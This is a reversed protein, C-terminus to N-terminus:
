SVDVDSDLKGWAALREELLSNFWQVREMGAAHGMGEVMLGVGPQLVKILREGNGPAMLKDATGHVVLIRERGVRDAIALLQAESKRHWWAAVLQCLFGSVSFEGGRRKVLEQAQFRQFNSDFLRYELDTDDDEDAAGLWPTEGPTPLLEADPALLWDMPFVQRATDAIAEEASKPKLLGFGDLVTGYLGRNNDVCASTSLLTLSRLRSPVAHAVEQAIMGGLSIGVLNVEREGTWGVHDLVEIVDKAMTETSYRGVPKDSGGVGRNDLILVSYQDRYDHGFYKTQRQWSTKVGALGM